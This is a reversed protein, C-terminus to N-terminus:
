RSTSVRSGSIAPWSASSRGQFFFMAVVAEAAIPLTMAFAVQLRVQQQDVLLRVLVRQAQDTHTRMAFQESFLRLPLRGQRVEAPFRPQTGNGRVADVSFAPNMGMSSEDMFIALLTVSRMPLVREHLEIADGGAGVCADDGLEFAGVGDVADFVADAEGHDFRGLVLSLNM